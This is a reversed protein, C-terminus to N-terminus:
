GVIQWTNRRASKVLGRIERPHLGQLLGEGGDLSFERVHQPLVSLAELGVHAFALHPELAPVGEVEEEIALLELLITGEAGLGCGQEFRQRAEFPIMRPCRAM